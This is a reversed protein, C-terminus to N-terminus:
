ARCVKLEKLQKLKLEMQERHLKEKAELAAMFEPTLEEITDEDKKKLKKKKSSKLKDASDSDHHSHKTKRRNTIVVGSTSATQENTSAATPHSSYNWEVHPPPLSPGAPRYM